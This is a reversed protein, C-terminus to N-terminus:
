VCKISREKCKTINYAPAPPLLMKATSLYRLGNNTYNLRNFMSSTNDKACCGSVLHINKAKFINPAITKRSDLKKSKLTTRSLFIVTIVTEFLQTIGNESCLQLHMGKENCCEIMGKWQLSNQSLSLNQSLMNAQLNATSPSNM